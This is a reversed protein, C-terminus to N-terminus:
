LSPQHFTLERRDAKGNPTPVKDQAQDKATVSVRPPSTQLPDEVDQKVMTGGGNGLRTGAPVYVVEGSMQNGGTTENTQTELLVSHKGEERLLPRVAVLPM